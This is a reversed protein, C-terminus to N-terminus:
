VSMGGLCVCKLRVCVCFVFAYTSLYYKFAYNMHIYM